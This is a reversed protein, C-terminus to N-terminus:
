SARGSGGDDHGRLQMSQLVSDPSAGGGQARHMQLLMDLLEPHKDMIDIGKRGSNFAEVAVNALRYELVRRM